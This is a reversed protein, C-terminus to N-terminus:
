VEDYDVAVTPTTPHSQCTLIYGAQMEWPELSFNQDMAVKGDILRARCTCCMGGRCSYPMELGQRLGAEVITEGDFMNIVHDSGDLRVRVTAAPEVADQAPPRVATRQVGPVGDTTFYEVHIRDVPVGCRILATKSDAILDGPGCLFAADIRDAPVVTRLFLAIRDGDIRGDLLAVEQAERSLVHYIGLRDLFRDKLDELMSKFIISQSTRNGYILIMRSGPERTLVTRLISMIPTIGSGAAIALYTRAATPDPALGFRGQPTMVDIRDGLRLAENAFRSFAGGDVKKVAIRLEGDDLGTCISYSRRAEVGDLVMRLTVHQGPEFAYAERLKEPVAFAISVADPTERRVDAVELQHFAVAM